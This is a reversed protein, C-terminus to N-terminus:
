RARGHHLTVGDEGEEARWGHHGASRRVQAVFRELVRRGAALSGNGIIRVAHPHIITPDEPDDEIGFMQHIVAGGVKLDGDGLAAFVDKPIRFSGPPAMGRVDPMTYHTQGRYAQDEVLGRWAKGVAAWDEPTMDDDAKAAGGRAMGHANDAPATFHAAGAAILGALGYKKIIDILKDDFVVYNHTRPAVDGLKMDTAWRSHQDLYKIGPIGAERLAQTAYSPNYGGVGPTGFNRPANHALTHIIEAGTRPALEVEQGAFTGGETKDGEIGLSRLAEQVKPHQESLPRDWDLFHEPEANIDVEYMKGAPAKLKSADLRRLTEVASDYMGAASRDAPNSSRRMFEAHDSLDKIRRHILEAVSEGAKEWGQLWGVASKVHYPIDEANSYETVPKGEWEFLNRRGL